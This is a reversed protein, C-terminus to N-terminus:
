AGDEINVEAGELKLKIYEPVLALTVVAISDISAKIDIGCVCNLQKGDIKVTGMKGHHKLDIEVISESM